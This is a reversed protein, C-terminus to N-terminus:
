MVESKSSHEQLLSVIVGIHPRLAIKNDANVAISALAWLGQVAVQCCVFVGKLSLTDCEIYM